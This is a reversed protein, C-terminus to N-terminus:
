TRASKRLGMAQYLIMACRGVTEACIGFDSDLSSESPVIEPTAPERFRFVAEGSLRDLARNVGENEEFDAEVRDAEDLLNFITNSSTRGANFGPKLIVQALAVEAGQFDPQILIMAPLESHHIYDEYRVKYDHASM